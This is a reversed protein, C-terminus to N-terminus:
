CTANLFDAQTKQVWVGNVKQWYTYSHNDEYCVQALNLYCNAWMNVKWLGDRAGQQIIIGQCDNGEEGVYQLQGNVCDYYIVSSAHGGCGALAPVPLSLSALALMAIVTLKQM